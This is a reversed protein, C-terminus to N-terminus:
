VEETDEVLVKLVKNAFELSGLVNQKQTYKEPRYINRERKEEVFEKFYKVQTKKRKGFLSLIEEKDILGDRDKGFYFRYSSYPYKIEEEVIKARVPNQHIYRILELLHPDEEVIISNYRGQFLHGCRSYKRNFYMTYATNLTQMIKALREKHTPRLLLHVHNSMLCYCYLLFEYQKKYIRLYNLYKLFDKHHLFIEQRNNGRTIVHYLYDPIDIRTKRAM